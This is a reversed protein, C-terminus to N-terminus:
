AGAVTSPSGASDSTMMGMSKWRGSQLQMQGVSTVSRLKRVTLRSASSDAESM